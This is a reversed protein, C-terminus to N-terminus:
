LKIQWRGHEDKCLEKHAIEPKGQNTKYSMELSKCSKGEHQFSRDFTVRGESGSNVNVWRKSKPEESLLVQKAADEILKIDEETMKEASKFSSSVLREAGKFLEFPSTIVGKLVGTIAGQGIQESIEKSNDVIVDVRDLYGPIVKRTEEVQNLVEPVLPLAKNVTQNTENIATVADGSVKLVQPLAAQLQDIQDQMRDVRQYVAPLSERTAKVESLILPLTNRVAAVESVVVPVSDNVREVTQLINPVQAILPKIAAETGEIGKNISEVQGLIGPIQNVVQILAYAFYTIAGALLCLAFSM